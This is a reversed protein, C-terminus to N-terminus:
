ILWSHIRIPHQNFIRASTFSFGLLIRTFSKLPNQYSDHSIRIHIKPPNQHSNQFSESPFLIRILTRLSNRYPNKFIGSFIRKRRELIGPDVNWFKTVLGSIWCLPVYGFYKFKAESLKVQVFCDSKINRTFIIEKM